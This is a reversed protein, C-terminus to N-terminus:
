DGKLYNKCAVLQEHVYRKDNLKRNLGSPHPLRYHSIGLRLLTVSVANGLALIKNYGKSMEAIQNADPHTRKIDYGEYLNVFSVMPADLDKLWQNLHKITPSKGHKRSPNLGVVLIKM